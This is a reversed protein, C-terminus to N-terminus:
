EFIYELGLYLPFGFAEVEEHIGFAMGKSTLSIGYSLDAPKIKNEVILNWSRYYLRANVSIDNNSTYSSTLILPDTEFHLVDTRLNEALDVANGTTIVVTKIDVRDRWKPVEVTERVIKVSPTLPKSSSKLNYGMFMGIILILFYSLITKM